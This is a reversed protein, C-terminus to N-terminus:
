AALALMVTTASLVAIPDIRRHAIGVVILWASPVADTIALAGISSGTLARIIVYAVLPLLLGALLRLPSLRPPHGSM